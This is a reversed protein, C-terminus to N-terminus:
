RPINKLPLPSGRLDETEGWLIGDLTSLFGQVDIPKTV